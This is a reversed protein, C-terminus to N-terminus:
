LNLSDRVTPESDVLPSRKHLAKLEADSLFRKDRAQRTTRCLLRLQNLRSGQRVLISFSRPSIEIYLPGSYEAPVYDFSDTGDAILRTFVDLRIHGRRGM